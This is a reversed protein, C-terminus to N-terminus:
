VKVHLYDTSTLSHFYPSLKFLVQEMIDDRVLLWGKPSM